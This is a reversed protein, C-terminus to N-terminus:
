QEQKLKKLKEHIQKPKHGVNLTDMKDAIRGCARKLDGSLPNWWDSSELGCGRGRLFELSDSFDQGGVLYKKWPFIQPQPTIKTSIYWPKLIGSYIIFTGM